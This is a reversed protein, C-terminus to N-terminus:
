APARSGPGPAHGPKGRRVERLGLVELQKPDVPGPAGTMPDAARATKPFPIVERINELGLMMALIRDLGPAIGAHPPTGYALAELFFGFREKAEDDSIGLVRFIRAQEDPDHIRVSGSAVEVGNLVLDYSASRLEGLPSHQDTLTAQADDALEALRPADEPHLGTFPHHASQWRQTAEDWEFLPFDTVWLFRFARVDKRVLKLMRGLANRVAALSANVTRLQDAGFLIVSEPMAGVRECLAQCADAGLYKVPVGSCAYAGGDGDAPGVRIWALGKAGHAKAVELLEDELEKRGLKDGEPVCLAKVVGGAALAKQFVTFDSDAVIDGVDALELGFRVDPKDTGFCDMAESYPMRQFPVRLDANIGAQFAAQMAKEVVAFVDDPDAFSMELDLQTFEPQRDARLDEDRFCRAIQYYRDCGGIMCLQKFLQPSQPLAYYRGWHVRSPVLYDRAGEPTSKALIPTEIELFGEADMIRRMAQIARHRVALAEQMQPRRLDLYRYQLRTEENVQAYASTPFPLEESRSLVAFSEVFLEIRGTALDPHVDKDDRAEVEGAVQLVWADGVDHALKLVDPRSLNFKIQTHGYRDRLDIFMVGGHDRRNQVWGALTVTRGVHADRLEGCTHTRKM